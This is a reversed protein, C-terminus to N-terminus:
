LCATQHDIRCSTSPHRLVAVRQAQLGSCDKGLATAPQSGCQVQQVHLCLVPNCFWSTTYVWALRSASAETSISGLLHDSSPVTLKCSKRLHKAKTQMAELIDWAAAGAKQCLM